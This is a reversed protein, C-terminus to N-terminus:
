SPHDRLSNLNVRSTLNRYFYGMDQLRVFHVTHESAHVEIRDGDLLDVPPQGDLSLAATHDTHIIVTVTAGEALVIPHNFSLHAAVPVLLINRLDPPLIPGGAALAYATSGTPTATILGDAVYTTLKHGDVCTILQVPRMFYGRGIMAENLVDWKGLLAQERHHEAQLMMRPELWYKGELLQALFQPWSEQRISTLFGVNGMNIGVIPLNHPGCLHGSRLMTGDGGLAIWLDFQRKQVGEILAPTNMPGYTAQLGQARLFEAIKKAEQLANPLKPHAAVAIHEFTMKSLM